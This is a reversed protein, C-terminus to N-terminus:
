AIAIQDADARRSRVGSAVDDALQAVATWDTYEHERTVDTSGGERQAIYRMLMRKLWGYRPYALRGAFCVIAQPQWGLRRCFADALRTAADVEQPHKSAASLSVSFFASHRANLQDRHCKVFAAANAQHRGGHLSAGVIAGHARPWTFDTAERSRVSIAESAFGHERLHAALREAIRHTQGETTAYFVPIDCM